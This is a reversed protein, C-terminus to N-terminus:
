GCQRGFPFLWQQSLEPDMAKRVAFDVAKVESGCQDCVPFKNIFRTITCQPIEDSKCIFCPFSDDLIGNYKDTQGNYTRRLKELQYPSTATGKTITHICVKPGAIVTNLGLHPTIGFHREDRTTVTFRPLKQVGAVEIAAQMELDTAHKVSKNKCM